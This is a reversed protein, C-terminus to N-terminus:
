RGSIELYFTTASLDTTNALQADSAATLDRAYLKGTAAAGSAAPIFELQYQVTAVAKGCQKVSYVESFGAWAGLTAVSLDIVSGGTDYSATGVVSAIVTKLGGASMVQLATPAAFASM